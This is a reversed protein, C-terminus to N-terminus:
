LTSHAPGAPKRGRRPRDESYARHFAGPRAARLAAEADDLWRLAAEALAHTAAAALSRQDPIDADPEPGAVDATWRARYAAVIHLVDVDPLSSAILVRDVLDTWEEGIISETDHLWALGERTGLPTLRYLPLGDVTLGASEIAGQLVLRELTGYIQGVNVKRRGATRSRLERHLQFGYAPGLTLISLLSNRVSM